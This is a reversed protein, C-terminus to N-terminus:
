HGRLYYDIVTSFAAFGAAGLIGAQPGARFGLIGGTIAGSITGNALECKGRYSEVMCEIGAFMMGVVAFNKGYSMSRARMEKLYARTSPPQADATAYTSMPDISATFVGFIVGIGFGAVCSLASKFACSEFAAQVMLEEKPRSNKIMTWTQIYRPTRQKDEGILKQMVVDFDESKLQKVYDQDDLKSTQDM